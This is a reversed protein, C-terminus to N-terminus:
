HNIARRGCAELDHMAAHVSDLIRDRMERAAPREAAPVDHLECADRVIVAMTQLGNYFGVAYAPHNAIPTKRPHPTKKRRTM